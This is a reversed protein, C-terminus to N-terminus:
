RVGGRVEEAERVARDMRVVDHSLMTADASRRSHPVSECVEDILPRVWSKLYRDAVRLAEVVEYSVGYRAALEPDLKRSALMLQSRDRKSLAM